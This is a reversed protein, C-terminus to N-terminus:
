KDSLIRSLHPIMSNRYKSTRADLKRFNNRNFRHMFPLLSGKRYFYVVAYNSRLFYEASLAGRLGTSYLYYLSFMLFNILSLM